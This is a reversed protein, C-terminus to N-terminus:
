LKAPAIVARPRDCGVGFARCDLEVSRAFRKGRRPFPLVDDGAPLRPHVYLERLRPLRENPTADWKATVPQHRRMGVAAVRAENPTADWKAAVPKTAVCESQPLACAHREVYGQTLM